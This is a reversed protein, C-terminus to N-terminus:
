RARWWPLWDADEGIVDGECLNTDDMLQQKITEPLSGWGKQTGTQPQTPLRSHSVNGRSVSDSAGGGGADGGVAGRWPSALLGTVAPCGAARGCSAPSFLAGGLPRQEGALRYLCIALRERAAADTPCNWTRATGTQACHRTRRGPHAPRVLLARRSM